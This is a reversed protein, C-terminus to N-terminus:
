CLMQHCKAMRLQFLTLTMLHVPSKLLWRYAQGNKTPQQSQLLQLFLRHMRYGPQPDTGARWLMFDDLKGTMGMGATFELGMM